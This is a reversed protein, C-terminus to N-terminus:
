KIVIKMSKDGARVAYMGTPLEISLNTDSGSYISIGNISNVMVAMNGPNEIILRNGKVNILCETNGPLSEIGAYKDIIKINDIFTFPFAESKTTAVFGLQPTKGKLSSLDVTQKVWGPKDGLTSLDITQVHKFDEGADAQIQLENSYSNGNDKGFNYIYFSLEPATAASFDMKGTFMIGSDGLAKGDMGAYSDDTDYAPIGGEQEGYIGWQGSGNLTAVALLSISRMDFSEEFPMKYPMGLPVPRTQSGNSFGGDTEAFVGFSFFQQEKDAEIARYTFSTGKVYRGIQIQNDGELKVIYYTIQDPNIPAGDIDTVPADWTILVEGINETERAHVNTPFSAKKVGVFVTSIIGKGEGAENFVKVMYIYDDTKDVFDTFALKNGPEPAEFVNIIEGDRYLEIKTISELKGGGINESPASFSVIAKKSNHSDVTIKFDAVSEPLSKDMPASVSLDDIYLFFGGSKTSAHIGLNYEGSEEPTFYGFYTGEGKAGDRMHVNQIVASNMADVTAGKGIKVEFDEGWFGYPRANLAIRYVNGAEMRIGPSILWDDKGNTEFVRMEQSLTGEPYESEIWQWQHGDANTDIITFGEADAASDFSNLYPPLIYTSPTYSYDLIFTAKLEKSPNAGDLEIYDAPICFTYSGDPIETDFVAKIAPHGDIETAETKSSQVPIGGEAPTLTADNDWFNTKKTASQADTFVVAVERLSNVTSGDTPVFRVAYDKPPIYTVKYDITPSKIGDITFAGKEATFSLESAEKVLSKSVQLRLSNSSATLRYGTGESLNDLRELVKGALKVSHPAGDSTPTTSVSSASPFSFSIDIDGFEPLARRSDNPPYCTWEFDIDDSIIFRATIQDNVLDDSDYRFVGAPITLTYEGTETIPSASGTPTSSFEMTWFSGFGSLSVCHYANLGNDMTISTIADRDIGINMGGDPFEIRLKSINCVSKNEEPHFVYKDFVSEAALAKASLLVATALLTTKLNNKM